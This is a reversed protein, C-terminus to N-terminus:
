FLPKKSKTVMPAKFYLPEYAVLNEFDGKEYMEDAIEVMFKASLRFPDIPINHDSFIDKAKEIGTGCAIVEQNKKLDGISEITLILNNTASIINLDQDFLCTYVEMRRADIMPAYINGPKETMTKYAIAKLTPVAILPIGLGYCLGKATAAAVRLGTYSGPGHSVSIADLDNMEKNAIKLVESIFLTIKRTHSFAEDSEKITIIQGNESLGVSCIESSTELNLILAM